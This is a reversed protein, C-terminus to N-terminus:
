KQGGGLVSGISMMGGRQRHSDQELPDNRRFYDVAAYWLTQQVRGDGQDALTMPGNLAKLTMPTGPAASDWGILDRDRMMAAGNIAAYVDEATRSEGGYLWLALIRRNSQQDRSDLKGLGLVEAAHGLLERETYVPQEVIRPSATDTEERRKEERIKETEPNDGQRREPTVTDDLELFGRRAFMEIDPPTEMYCLKAILDRDNPLEGDKDAALLWMAVLQGREADTLQVWEANRMVQRHLKIWPPQGRDKRYTQWRDWDKVRM